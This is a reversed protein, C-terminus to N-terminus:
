PKLAQQPLTTYRGLGRSEVGVDFDVASGGLFCLDRVGVLRFREIQLSPFSGGRSWLAEPNERSRM